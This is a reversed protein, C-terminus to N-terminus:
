NQAIKRDAIYTEDDCQRRGAICRRLTYQTTEDFRDSCKITEDCIKSGSICKGDNRRFESGFLSLHLESCVYICVDETTTEVYIRTPQNNVEINVTNKM